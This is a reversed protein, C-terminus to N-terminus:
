VKGRLRDMCGLMRWNNGTSASSNHGNRQQLHRQYEVLTAALVAALLAGDDPTTEGEDRLLIASGRVENSGIV